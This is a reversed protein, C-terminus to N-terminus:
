NIIENYLQEASSYKSMLMNASIIDNISKDYDIDDRVYKDIARLATILEKPTVINDDIPYHKLNGTVLMSDFENSSEKVEFFPIDDKNSLLVKTKEMDSVCIGME